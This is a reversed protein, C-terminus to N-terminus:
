NFAKVLSGIILNWGDVLVFLLIKLPASIMAPPLQVMGVSLTISAVVLDVVLFPLYLVVGVQFGARLESLMYAPMLVSLSLDHATRPPAVQSLEVFLKVDKERAFRSLFERLPASGQNLAQQTTLKGEQLPQWSKEYIQTAVPRMILMTLFLSLGLLIQNSPTSQTGLAQRLFHLILTIRLFPTLCMVVAPLFTLATLLVIIQLPINATGSNGLSLALGPETRSAAILPTALSSLLALLILRM